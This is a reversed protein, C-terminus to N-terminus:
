RAMLFLWEKKSNGLQWGYRKYNFSPKFVWRPHPNVNGHYHKMMAYRDEKNSNSINSESIYFRLVPQTCKNECKKRRNLKRL